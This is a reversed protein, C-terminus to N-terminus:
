KKIINRALTGLVEWGREISQDELFKLNKESILKLINEKSPSIGEQELVKVIDDRNWEIRLVINRKEM